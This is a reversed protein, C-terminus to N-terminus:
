DQRRRLVLAWGWLALGWLGTAGTSLTSCSDTKQGSRDSANADETTDTGGECVREPRAAAQVAPDVEHFDQVIAGWEIFEAPDVDSFDEVTGTAVWLKGTQRGPDWAVLWAQGTEPLEVTEEVLVWSETQTFPEYFDGPQEVDQTDFVQIGTGAPLEFPLDAEPAPLGPAVLAVSPRYDSLRDIVPVGLQIYLPFGAEGDLSMWLHQLDCTIEQYLVISIEPDPVAWAEGPTDYDGSFSPKHAQATTLFGLALLSTYM